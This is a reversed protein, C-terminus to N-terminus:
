RHHGSEDESALRTLSDTAVESPSWFSKSGPNWVLAHKLAEAAKYAEIATQRQAAKESASQSRKRLAEASKGKVIYAAAVDNLVGQKFIERKARNVSQPVHKAQLEDEMRKAKVAFDNICTNADDIAAAYDSGDLHRWADKLCKEQSAMPAASLALVVTV